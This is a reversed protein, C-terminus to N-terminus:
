EYDNGNRFTMGCVVGKNRFNHSAIRCKDCCYTHNYNRKQFQNGCQPCFVMSVDKAEKTATKTTVFGIKTEGYDDDKVEKVEKKVEQQATVTVLHDQKKPNKRDMWETISTKVKDKFKDLLTPKHEIVVSEDEQAMQSGSSLVIQGVLVSTIALILVLSVVSETNVSDAGLSHLLDTLRHFAKPFVDINPASSQLTFLNQEAELLASKANDLRTKYAVAGSLDTLESKIRREETTELIPAKGELARLQPCYKNHYYSSGPCTGGLMQRVTAGTSKGNMNYATQNWFKDLDSQIASLQRKKSTIAEERVKTLASELRAIESGAITLQDISYPNGNQIINLTNQAQEVKSEALAIEPSNAISHKKYLELSDWGLSFLSFVTVAITINIVFGAKSAMAMDGRRKAWYQISALHPRIIVMTVAWICFGLKSVMTTGFSAWAAGEIGSIVILVFRNTTYLGYENFYKKSM